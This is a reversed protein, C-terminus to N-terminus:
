VAVAVQRKCGPQEPRSEPNPVQDGDRDPRQRSGTLSWSLAETIAFSPSAAKSVSCEVPLRIFGSSARLRASSVVLAELAERLQVAPNSLGVLASAAGPYPTRM